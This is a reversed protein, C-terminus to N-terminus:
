KAHYKINYFCLHIGFHYNLIFCHKKQPFGELYQSGFRSNLSNWMDKWLKPFIKRSSPERARSSNRTQRSGTYIELAGLFVKQMPLYKFSKGSVFTFSFAIRYLICPLHLNSKVRLINPIM